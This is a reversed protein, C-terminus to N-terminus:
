FGGGFDDMGGMGGMGGMQQMMSSMDMDGGDFDSDSGGVGLVAFGSIARTLSTSGCKECKPNLESNMSRVFVSLPANCSDCTYEYIPM